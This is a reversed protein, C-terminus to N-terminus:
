GSGTCELFLCCPPHAPHVSISDYVCVINLSEGTALWHTLRVPTEAGASFRAAAIDGAYTFLGTLGYIGARSTGDDCVLGIQRRALRQNTGVHDDHVYPRGRPRDARTEAQPSLRPAHHRARGTGRRASVATRRRARGGKRRARREVGLPDIQKQNDISSM